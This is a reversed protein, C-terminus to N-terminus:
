AGGHGRVGDSSWAVRRGTQQEIRRVRRIATGRQGDTGRQLADILDGPTVIRRDSHEM